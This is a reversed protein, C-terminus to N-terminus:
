HQKNLYIEFRNDDSECDFVCFIDDVYRRYFLVTGTYNSLWKEEHVGMFLNAMAPALPSGMAIGDEQNFIKGDFLFHTKQTAFHFLETLEKKDLKFIKKRKLLSILLWSLPKM